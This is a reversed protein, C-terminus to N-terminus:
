EKDKCCQIKKWKIRRDSHIKKGNKVIYRRDFQTTKGEGNVETQEIKPCRRQFIGNQWYSYIVQLEEPELLMVDGCGQPGVSADAWFNQERTAHSFFCKEMQQCSQQCSQQAEENLREPLESHM